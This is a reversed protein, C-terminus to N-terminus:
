EKAGEGHHTHDDDVDALQFVAVSQKHGNERGEECGGEGDDIGEVDLMGGVRDDHEVFHDSRGEEGGDSGDDHVSVKGKRSIRGVPEPNENKGKEAGDNGEGLVNLEELSHAHEGQVKDGVKLGNVTNGERRDDQLFVFVEIGAKVETGGDDDPRNHSIRQDPSPEAPFRGRVLQHM